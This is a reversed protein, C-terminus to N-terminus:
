ESGLIAEVLDERSQNAAIGREKAMEQLGRYSLTDLDVEEGDDGPDGPDGLSGHDEGTDELPEAEGPSGQDDGDDSSVEGTDGLPVETGDKEVGDKEVGDDDAELEPGTEDSPSPYRHRLYTARTVERIRYKPIRLTHWEGDPPITYGGRVVPKTSTNKVEVEVFKSM